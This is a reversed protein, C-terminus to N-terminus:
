FAFRMAVALVRSNEKTQSADLLLQYGNTGAGLYLNISRFTFPGSALNWQGTFDRFYSNWGYASWGQTDSPNANMGTTATLDAPFAAATTLGWRPYIPYIGGGQGLGATMSSNFFTVVGAGTITGGCIHSETGILKLQGSLDMGNQPPLSITQPTIALTPIVISYSMTVVDGAGLVIPNSLVARSFSIDSNVQANIWAGPSTGSTHYAAERLTVESPAPYFVVRRTLICNGTTPDVIASNGSGAANTSNAWPSYLPGGLAATVGSGGGEAGTAAIDSLGLIIGKYGGAIMALMSLNNYGGFGTNGIQNRFYKLITNEQPTKWPRETAGNARLIECDFFGRPKLNIELGLELPHTPIHINM